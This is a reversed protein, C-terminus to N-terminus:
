ATEKELQKTNSLEQVLERSSKDRIHTRLVRKLEAVTLDDKNTLYDKFLGGKTVRLVARVIESESVGTDIAEDIQKCIHTYSIESGSDSIQGGQIKFERRSLFAAMDSIRVVQDTHMKSGSVNLSDNSNIPLTSINEKHTTHTSLVPITVPSSSRSHEPAIGVITMENVMDQLHLLRSMGADELSQLKKSKMYDSIYYFLEPKSLKSLEGGDENELSAALQYLQTANLQLLKKHIEWLLVQRPESSTM